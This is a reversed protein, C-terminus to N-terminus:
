ERSAGRKKGSGRGPTLAPAASRHAPRRPRPAPAGAGSSPAGPARFRAAARTCAAHRPCGALHDNVLGCAQMFAYVTTPGVFAFGRRRLEKSLATSAATVPPVQRLSRFRNVVPRGGVAGWCLARLSGGQAQLRLLARASQIAGEIKGRHRVIGADGLLRRVDRPGYAAMRAPAFRDFARRFAARKHLITRWSLGAQFGELVLMEFLHREGASPLGWEEDHYSVYEPDDGAWPCRAM